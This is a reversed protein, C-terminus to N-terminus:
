LYLSLNYILTLLCSLLPNVGIEWGITPSKEFVWHINRFKPFLNSLDAPNSGNLDRLIRLKHYVLFSISLLPSESFTPEDTCDDNDRSLSIKKFFQEYLCTVEAGVSKHSELEEFITFPLLHYNVSKQWVIRLAFLDEKGVAGIWLLKPNRKHFFSITFEM